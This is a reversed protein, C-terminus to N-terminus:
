AASSRYPIRAAQGPPPTEADLRANLLDVQRRLGAVDDELARATRRWRGQRLWVAVGGVMVGLITFGFIMLFLPMTLALAPDASGFPDFSLTVAQRNAVAFMVLVIALPVLVFITVLKRTM